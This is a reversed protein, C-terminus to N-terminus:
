RVTKANGQGLKGRSVLEEIDEKTRESCSLVLRNSRDDVGISLPVPRSAGRGSFDNSSGTTMQERYVERLLQAVENARAHKFPPLMWTRILAASETEGADITGAAGFASCISRSPRFSSPIQMPTRWSAFAIRKRLPLRRLCGKHSHTRMASAGFGGTFGAGRGGGNNRRVGNYCDELIQAADAARAKKLFIVTFDGDAGGTKMLMRVLENVLKMAEPDDSTIVLRNGLAMITIPATQQEAPAAPPKKAEPSQALLDGTALAAVLIGLSATRVCSTVEIM